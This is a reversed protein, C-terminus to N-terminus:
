YGPIIGPLYGSLSGSISGSIIESLNEPLFRSLNIFLNQFLNVSLIRILVEILDDSGHGPCVGGYDVPNVPVHPHCAPPVGRAHGTYLTLYKFYSYKNISQRNCGM